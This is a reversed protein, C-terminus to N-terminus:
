VPNGVAVREITIQVEHHKVKVIAGDLWTFTFLATHAESPRKLSVMATDQVQLAWEVYGNADMSVDNANLVNQNYRGNIVAHTHQDVYLLTLATTENVSLPADNEKLLVTSYIGTDGQKLAPWLPIVGSM